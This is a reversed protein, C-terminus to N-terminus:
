EYTFSLLQQRQMLINDKRTQVGSLMESKIDTTGHSGLHSTKMKSTTEMKSTMKMKSTTKMKSTNKM